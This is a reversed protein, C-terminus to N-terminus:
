SVIGEDGSETSDYSTSATLEITSSERDKKPAEGKEEIQETLKEATTSEKQPGGTLEPQETESESRGSLLILLSLEKIFGAFVLTLGLQKARYSADIMKDVM